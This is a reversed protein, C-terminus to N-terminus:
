IVGRLRASLYPAVLMFLLGFIMMGGARLDYDALIRESSLGTALGLSVEFIVTLVVWTAGIVLFERAHGNIWRVTLVAITLILISGILVGLQRARLDGIYPTIFVGRLIGHITEAVIIALWVLLGRLFTYSFRAKM